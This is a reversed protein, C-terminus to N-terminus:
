LSEGPEEEKGQGKLVPLHKNIVFPFATVEGLLHHWASVAEHTQLWPPVNV